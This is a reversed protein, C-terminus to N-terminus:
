QKKLELAMCCKPCAGPRDQVVEPHMPCTYAVASNTTSRGAAHCKQYWQCLWGNMQDIETSQASRMERCREKLVEHTAKGECTKAMGVATAHHKVMMEMFAVEFRPGSLTKLSKAEPMTAPRGRYSVGYWDRLWQRMTDVEAQQTTSMDACMSKLEDHSARTPCLKGVEVAALHHDIMGKLFGVEFPKAVKAKTTSSPHTHPGHALASGLFVCMMMAAATWIMLQRHM